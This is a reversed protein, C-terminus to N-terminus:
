AAIRTSSASAPKAVSPEALRREMRRVGRSRRWETLLTRLVRIGDSVARLNSEGFM